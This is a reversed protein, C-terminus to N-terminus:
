ERISMMMFEYEYAWSWISMHMNSTYEYEHSFYEYFPLPSHKCTKHFHKQESFLSSPAHQCFVSLLWHKFGFDRWEYKLSLILSDDSIKMKIYGEIITKVLIRHKYELSLISTFLLELLIFNFTLHSRHSIPLKKDFSICKQWKPTSLSFSFFLQSILSWGDSFSKYTTEKFNAIIQKPNRRWFYHRAWCIITCRAFDCFFVYLKKM